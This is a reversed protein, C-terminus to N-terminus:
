KVKILSSRNYNIKLNRKTGDIFSKQLYKYFKEENKTVKALSKINKSNSVQEETQM